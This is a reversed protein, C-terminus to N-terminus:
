SERSSDVSQEGASQYMRLAKTMLLMASDSQASRSKWRISAIWGSRSLVGAVRFLIALM